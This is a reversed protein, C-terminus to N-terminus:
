LSLLLPLSLLVGQNTTTYLILIILLSLFITTTITSSAPPAAANKFIMDFYGGSGGDSYGGDGNSTGGPSTGSSIPESGDQGDRCLTKLYLNIFIYIVCYLFICYETYYNSNLQSYNPYWINLLFYNFIILTQQSNIFYNPILRGRTRCERSVVLNKVILIQNLLGILIWTAM